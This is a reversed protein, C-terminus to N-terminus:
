NRGIFCASDSGAAKVVHHQWVRQKAKQRLEKKVRMGQLAGPFWEGFNAGRGSVGAQRGPLKSSEM